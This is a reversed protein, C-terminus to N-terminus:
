YAAGDQSRRRSRPPLRAWVGRTGCPQSEDCEDRLGMVRSTSYPRSIAAPPPISAITWEPIIWRGKFFATQAALALPDPVHEFVDTATIIDYEGSLTAQLTSKDLVCPDCGGEIWVYDM